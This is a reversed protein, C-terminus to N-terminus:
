QVEDGLVAEMPIQVQQQTITLLYADEGTKKIEVGQAEELKRDTRVMCFWVDVFGEADIMLSDGSVTIVPNIKEYRKFREEAELWNVEELFRNNRYMDYVSKSLELLYAAWEYEEATGKSGLVEGMDLYLTAIGEGSAMSEMRYRKEDTQMHGENVVPLIVGEEKELIIGGSRRIQIWIDHFDDNKDQMYTRGSFILGEKHGIKDISPWMIDRIFMVPDRSYLEYLMERDVHEFDPYYDLLVASSNVVPYFFVEEMDALVGTFIGIDTENEFFPGNCSYIKGEGYQKKWLLPILFRQEKNERSREQIMKTCSADLSIDRVKMPLDEYYVMGQTFIGEFIMMGDITTEERSERIGLEKEYEPDAGSLCTFFVCKGEERAMRLLERQADAESLRDTAVIFVRATERQLDNLEGVNRGTIYEKKLKDLMQMIQLAATDEGDYLVVYEAAQPQVRLGAEEREIVPLGSETGLDIVLNGSFILYFILIGFFGAVIAAYDSIKLM